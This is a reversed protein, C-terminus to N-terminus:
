KNFMRSIKHNITFPTFPIFQRHVEDYVQHNIQAQVVQRYIQGDMQWKTAGAKEKVRDRDTFNM